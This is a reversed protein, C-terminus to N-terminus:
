VSADGNRGCDTLNSFNNLRNEIDHVVVLIVFTEYNNKGLIFKNNQFYHLTLIFNLLFINEIIHFKM